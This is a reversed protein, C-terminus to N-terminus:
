YRKGKLAVTFCSGQGLRSECWIRGGHKEVIGKAIALGLGSGNERPTRSREARYTREFINPLDEPGIGSGTDRVTIRIEGDDTKESGVSKRFEAGLCITDGEKTYRLANGFLNDLVRVMKSVDIDAMYPFDPSVELKLVRQEFRKDAECSYFYEELFIGIRIPEVSLQIAPNEVSTLLFLDEIMTQLTQLRIKMIHLIEGCEEKGADAAIKRELLETTGSLAALPARLDHSLNQLLEKRSKEESALRENMKWLEDNAELLQQELKERSAEPKEYPKKKVPM